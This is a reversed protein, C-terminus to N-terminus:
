TRSAVIANAKYRESTTSRRYTRAYRRATAIARAALAVDQLRRRKLAVSALLHAPALIAYLAAKGRRKEIWRYRKYTTYLRSSDQFAVYETRNVPSRGHYVFLAPDFVVRFGAQEARACLDIEDSGYWLLEDFRVSDFLVRPFAAANICIAHVDGAGQPEKEQHGWFSCNHPTVRFGDRYEFGTVVSREPARRFTEVARSLFEPPVVVDDDIFLVIEINPSLHALCNNRNASLGRRPGSLYTVGPLDNCVLAAEHQLHDDSDDSVLIQDPRMSSLAVSTLARRLETPRNRTCVCLAVRSSGDGSPLTM